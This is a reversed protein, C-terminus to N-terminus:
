LLIECLDVGIDQINAGSINVAVKALSPNVTVNIADFM